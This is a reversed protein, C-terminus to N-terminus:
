KIEEEKEIRFLYLKEYKGARSEYESELEVSYRWRRKIENVDPDDTFLFWSQEQLSSAPCVKGVDETCHYEVLNLDPSFFLFPGGFDHICCLNRVKKAVFDALIVNMDQM